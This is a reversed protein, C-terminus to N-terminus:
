CYKMKNFTYRVLTDKDLGKKIKNSLSLLIPTIDDRNGYVYNLIEAYRLLFSSFNEDYLDKFESFSYIERNFSQATSIKTERLTKPCVSTKQGSKFYLPNTSILTMYSEFVANYFLKKENLTGEVLDFNDEFFKKKTIGNLETQTPKLNFDMGFRWPVNADFRIGELFLYSIVRNYMTYQYFNSFKGGNDDYATQTPNAIEFILGSNTMPNQSSLIYENYFVQKGIKGLKFLKLIINLYSQFNKATDKISMTDDVVYKLYLESIVDSTQEIYAKETDIRTGAGKAIQFVNLFMSIGEENLAFELKLKEYFKIYLNYLNKNIYIGDGDAFKVPVKVLNSQKPLIARGALDIKGYSLNKDLFDFGRPTWISTGFAKYVIRDRFSDVLTSGNNNSLIAIEGTFDVNENDLFADKLNEVAGTESISLLKPDVKEM